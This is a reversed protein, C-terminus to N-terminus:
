FHGGHGGGSHGGSSPRGTGGSTQQPKPRPTRDTRTRIFKDDSHTINFSEQDVYTGAAYQAKVSKLQGKMVSTGIAGAILGIVVAIGVIMINRSSAAAKAAARATSFLHDCRDTYVTLAGFYDDNSLYGSMRNFINEAGDSGLADYCRGEALIYWQREELSLLFMLCDSNYEASSYIDYAKNDADEGELTPLIVAVFDADERRSIALLASDLEDMQDSTLVGARDDVHPQANAFAPVALASLMLAALLLAFVKKKM